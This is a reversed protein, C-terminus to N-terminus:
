RQGRIRQGDIHKIKQMVTSAIDDANLNNGNVNVSLSYNYVSSDPSVGSNIKSLNNVGYSDVASKKIVFEGPTLMAPITDTGKSFGGASFYTPVLGGNYEYGVRAWNGPSIGPPRSTKPASPTPTPVVPAPTDMGWSEIIANTRAIAADAAEALKTNIETQGAVVEENLKILYGALDAALENALETAAVAAAIAADAAETVAKAYDEAAKKEAEAKGDATAKDAAEAAEVAAREAAAKEEAKKKAAAVLADAEAQAKDSASQADAIIKNAAATADAIIKDATARDAADSAAVDIKSGSNTVITQATTMIKSDKTPAAAYAGIKTMIGTWEANISKSAALLGAFATDLDKRSLDYAKVKAEIATWAERTRGLVEIEKELKELRAEIIENENNLAAIMREKDVINDKTIRAIETEYNQVQELAISRAQELTYISNTKAKIQDQISLKKPNTDLSYIKQSLEFQRQKIEEQTLLGLEVKKGTIPDIAIRSASLIGEIDDKRSKELAKQSNSQSLELNTRRIAQMAKAAASIDGSSLASALDIRSEEQKLISDNINKITELAEAQKDYEKTIKESANNIVDLDNSLASLEDQLEKIPENFRVEIERQLDNIEKQYKDVKQSINLAVSAQIDNIKYQLQEIQAEYPRLQAQLEKIKSENAALQAVDKTSRPDVGTRILDEQVAFMQNVMDLGSSAVQGFDGKNFNIQIDILKKSEIDKLYQSIAGTSGEIAAIDIKGDKINETFQKLMAPNNLVADIQEASFKIKTIPDLVTNKMASIAEPTKAFVNFEANKTLTDTIVQMKEMASNAEAIDKIFKKMEESGKAGLTGAAIASTLSQDQIIKL